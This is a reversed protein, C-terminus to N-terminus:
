HRAFGVLCGTIFNKSFEVSDAVHLAQNIANVILLERGKKVVMIWLFGDSASHVDVAHAMRGTAPLRPEGGGQELQEM